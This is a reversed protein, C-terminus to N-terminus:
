RDAEREQPDAEDMYEVVKGKKDQDMRTKYGYWSLRKNEIKKLILEQKLNAMIEIDTFMLAVKILYMRSRKDDIQTEKIDDM